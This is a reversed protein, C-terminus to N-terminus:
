SGGASGSSGTLNELLRIDIINTIRVSGDKKRARVQQGGDQTCNTVIVRVACDGERACASGEVLGARYMLLRVHM